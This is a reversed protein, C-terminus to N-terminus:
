CSLRLIISLHYISLYGPLTAQLFNRPEIGPVVPNFLTLILRPLTGGTLFHFSLASLFDKGSGSDATAKIMPRGGELVM